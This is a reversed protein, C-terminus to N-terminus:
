RRSNVGFSGSIAGSLIISAVAIPLMVSLQSDSIILTIIVTIFAIPLSSLMGHLIGKQKMRRSYFFGSVFSSLTASLIMILSYKDYEIDTIYCIFATLLIMLIFVTISRFTLFLMEKLIKYKEADKNLKKKSKVM